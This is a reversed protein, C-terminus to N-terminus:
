RRYKFLGGLIFSIVVGIVVGCIFKILCEHHFYFSKWKIITFFANLKKYKIHPEDELSEKMEYHTDWSECWGEFKKDLPDEGKEVWIVYWDRFDIFEGFLTIYDKNLLKRFLALIKSQKIEM